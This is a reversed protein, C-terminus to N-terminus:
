GRKTAKIGIIIQYRNDIEELIKLTPLDNISIGQLLCISSTLNGFVYTEVNGTGFHKEFLKKISLNTFRWYDGWREMDYKSIQSLGGVTGLFVGNNKLVKHCSFIANDIDYIFNLTQTCIFCDSYNEPISDPKSLDCIISSGSNDKDFCLINLTDNNGSHYKNSYTNESVELISGKISEKNSNLFKEIYYRDIPTGRDFGFTNSIPKLRNIDIFHIKRKPLYNEIINKIKLFINM